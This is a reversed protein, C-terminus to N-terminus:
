RNRCELQKCYSWDKFVAQWIAVTPRVIFNVPSQEKKTNWYNNEKESLFGFFFSEHKSKGKM